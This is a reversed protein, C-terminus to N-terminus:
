WHNQLISRVTEYFRKYEHGEKAKEDFTKNRSWELIFKASSGFSMFAEDIVPLGPICCLHGTQLFDITTNNVDELIFLFLM